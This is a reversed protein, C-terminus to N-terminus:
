HGRRPAATNTAAPAPATTHAAAPANHGHNAADHTPHAAMRRKRAARERREYDEADEFFTESVVDQVATLKEKYSGETNAATSVKTKFDEVQTLLKKTEAPYMMTLMMGIPVALFYINKLTTMIFDRSDQIWNMVQNFKHVFGVKEETEAEPPNVAAAAEAPAPEKTLNVPKKETPAVGQAASTRKAVLSELDNIQRDVNQLQTEFLNLTNAIRELQQDFKTLSGSITNDSAPLNEAANSSNRNDKILNVPKKLNVPKSTEATM